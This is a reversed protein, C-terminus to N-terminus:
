VNSFAYHTGSLRVFSWEGGLRLDRAYAEFDFYMKFLEDVGDFRGSDNLWDEVIDEPSRQSSGVYQGNECMELAYTVSDEIQLAAEFVEGYTTLAETAVCVADLDPHEGWENVLSSPFEDYDHIAYEEANPTPSAKLMEDIFERLLDCTTNKDVDIWAGHLIGANYSALCAAYIRPM